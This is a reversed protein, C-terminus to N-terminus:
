ELGEIKFDVSEEKKEKDDDNYFVSRQDWNQQLFERFEELSTQSQWEGPLDSNTIETFEYRNLIM